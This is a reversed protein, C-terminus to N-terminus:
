KPGEVDAVFEPRSGTASTAVNVVEGYEIVTAKIPSFLNASLGLVVLVERLTMENEPTKLGVKMKVTGRGIGEIQSHDGVTDWEDSTRRFDSIMSIDNCMYCSAGSDVLWTRQRYNRGETMVVCAHEAITVGRVATFAFEVGKEDMSVAASESAGEPCLRTPHGINGCRWCQIKPNKKKGGQPQKKKQQGGIKERGIMAHESKGTTADGALIGYHRLLTVVEQFKHNPREALKSALSGRTEPRLGRLLASVMRRDKDAFRLVEMNRM